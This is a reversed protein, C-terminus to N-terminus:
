FGAALRKKAIEPNWFPRIRLSIAGGGRGRQRRFRVFSKSFPLFPAMAAANYSVVEKAGM